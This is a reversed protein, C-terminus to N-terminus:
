APLTPWQFPDRKEHSRNLRDVTKSDQIGVYRLGQEVRDSRNVRHRVAWPLDDANKAITQAKPSLKHIDAEKAVGSWGPSSSRSEANFSPHHDTPTSGM